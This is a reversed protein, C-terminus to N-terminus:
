KSKRRKLTEEAENRTYFVNKGFCDQTFRWVRSKDGKTYARIKGDEWTKDVTVEIIPTYKGLIFAIDGKKFFYIM